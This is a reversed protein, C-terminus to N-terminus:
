EYKFTVKKRTMYHRGKLIDCITQQSVGHYAAADKASPFKNGQNDMVPTKNNEISEQLDKYRNLLKATDSMKKRTEASRKSGRKSIALKQKHDESQKKGTLHHDLGKPRKWSSMKSKTEEKHKRGAMPATSSRSVNYAPKYEDIYVQEDALKSQKDTIKLILFEFNDQGYKNWARQLPASHHIGLKLARKHTRFRKKVNDSSGIYCKNNM